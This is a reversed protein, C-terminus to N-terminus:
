AKGNRRAVANCVFENEDDSLKNVASLPVDPNLVATERVQWDDDHLLSLLVEMPTNHNQAVAERVEVYQCAALRSLIEPNDTDEALRWLSTRESLQSDTLEEGFIESVMKILEKRDYNDNESM